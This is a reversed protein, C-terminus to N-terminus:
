QRWREELRLLPEDTAPVSRNDGEEWTIDGEASVFVYKYQIDNRPTFVEAVLVDEARALRLANEVNWEGLRYHNGVVKVCGAPLALRAHHPLSQVALEFRLLPADPPSPRPEPSLSARPTTLPTHADVCTPQPHNNRLLFVPPQTHADDVFFAAQHAVQALNSSSSLVVVVSCPTSMMHVANLQERLASDSHNEM